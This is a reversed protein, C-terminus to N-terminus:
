LKKMRSLDVNAFCAGSCKFHSKYKQLDSENMRKPHTWHGQVPIYLDVKSHYMLNKNSPYSFFEVESPKSYYWADFKFFFLQINLGINELKLYHRFAEKTITNGTKVEIFTPENRYVILDPQFRIFAATLSKDTNLKYSIRENKITHERGVDEFPINMIKLIVKLKDVTQKGKQFRSM